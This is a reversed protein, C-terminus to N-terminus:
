NFSEEYEQWKILHGNDYECEIRLNGDTWWEKYLGHQQSNRFHGDSALAGNDHYKILRGSILFDLGYQWIDNTLFFHIGTTCVKEINEDYDDEIWDNLQYILPNKVYFASIAHNYKNGKEDEIKVVYAKNTRYKAREYNLVNRRDLNTKADFPIHLTVLVRTEQNDNLKSYNYAIKYGIIDKM